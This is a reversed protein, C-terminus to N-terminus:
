QKITAEVINSGAVNASDKGFSDSYRDAPLDKLAYEYRKRGVEIKDTTATSIRNILKRYHQKIKPINSYLHFRKDKMNTETSSKPPPIHQTKGHHLTM